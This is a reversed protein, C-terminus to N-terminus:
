YDQFHRFDLCQGFSLRRVNTIILIIEVADSIVQCNSIAVNNLVKALLFGFQM